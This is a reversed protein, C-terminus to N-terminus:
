INARSKPQIFWVRICLCVPFRSFYLCTEKLCYENCLNVYILLGIIFVMFLVGVSYYSGGFTANVGSPTSLRRGTNFMVRSSTEVRSRLGGGSRRLYENKFDAFHAQLIRGRINIWDTENKGDTENRMAADVVRWVVVATLFLIGRM